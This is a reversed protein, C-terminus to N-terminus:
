GGGLDAELNSRPPQAPIAGPATAVFSPRESIRSHWDALRHHKALLHKGDSTQAAYALMPALFLDALTLSDGALMGGDALAQELVALQRNIEPLAAAIREQDPVAARWHSFLRESVLVRVMVPYVYANILSIWQLMRARTRRDSPQLPPTEALGDIYDAIALTEYYRENNHLLGPIKGFPHVAPLESSWPPEDVLDYAIQKEECVMRATRVYVSFRYGFLTPRNSM